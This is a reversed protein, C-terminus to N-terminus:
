HGKRRKMCPCCVVLNWLTDGCTEKVPRDRIKRFSSSEGRLGVPSEVRGGRHVSFAQGLKRSNLDAQYADLHASRQRQRYSTLEGSRPTIESISAVTLRELLSDMFADKKSQSGAVSPLTEGQKGPAGNGLIESARVSGFSPIAASQKEEGPAIVIPPKESM